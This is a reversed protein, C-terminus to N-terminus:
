GIAAGGEQLSLTAVRVEGVTDDQACDFSRTGAHLGDFRTWASEGSVRSDIRRFCPSFTKIRWRRDWLVVPDKSEAHLNACRIKTRRKPHCSSLSSPYASSGSCPRLMTIWTM